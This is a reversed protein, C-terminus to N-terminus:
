KKKYTRISVLSEHLLAKGIHHYVRKSIAPKGNNWKEGPFNYKVQFMPKKTKKDKYFKCEGKTIVGKSNIVDCKGKNYFIYDWNGKIVFSTKSEIPYAGYILNGAVWMRNKYIHFVYGQSSSGDATKLDAFGKNKFAIIKKSKTTKKKTIETSDINGKGDIKWTTKSKILKWENVWTGKIQKALKKDMGKELPKRKFLPTYADISPLFLKKDSKLGKNTDCIALSSIPQKSKELCDIKEKPLKACSTVFKKEKNFYNKKTEDIKVINLKKIAPQVDKWLSAFIIKCKAQFKPDVTAVKPTKKVPKTIKKPLAPKTVKKAPKAKKRILPKKEGDGKDEKEKCAMALLLISLVAIKLKAM